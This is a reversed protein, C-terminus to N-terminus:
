IKVKIEETEAGYKVTVTVCPEAGAEYVAKEASVQPLKRLAERALSIAMGAAVPEKENKLTYFKSGLQTDLTFSGLPVTLRIAARQFIEDKGGSLYPYGNEALKFDGNELMTDM